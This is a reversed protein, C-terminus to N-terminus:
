GMFILIESDEWSSALACGSAFGAPEFEFALEAVETAGLAIAAELKAGGASDAGFIVDEAVHKGKFVELSIRKVTGVFELAVSAFRFFLDEVFSNHVTLGASKRDAHVADLM